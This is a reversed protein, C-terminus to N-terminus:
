DDTGDERAYEALVEHARRIASVKVMAHVPITGQAIEEYSVRHAEEPSYQKDPDWPVSEREPAYFGVAVGDESAELGIRPQSLLVRGERAAAVICEDCIIVDLTSLDMPDFVTTGYAGESSFHLGESPQLEYGGDRVRRMPTKCVICPLSDRGGGLDAM